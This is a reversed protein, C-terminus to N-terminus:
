GVFVFSSDAGAQSDVAQAIDTSPEVFETILILEKDFQRRQEELIMNLAVIRFLKEQELSLGTFQSGKDEWSRLTSAPVRTQQEVSQYSLKLFTRLFKLKYGTLGEKSRLLAKAKMLKLENMNIDPYTEGHEEKLVVNHIIVDFGFGSFIYKELIKPV